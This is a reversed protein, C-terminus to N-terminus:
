PTDDFRGHAIRHELCLPRTSQPMQDVKRRDLVGDLDRMAEIGLAIALHRDEGVVQDSDRDILEADVLLLFEVDQEVKQRRELLGERGASAEVDAGVDAIVREVERREERRDVGELRMGRDKAEEIEVDIDDLVDNGVVEPEAVGFASEGQPLVRGVEPFEVIVPRPTSPGPSM